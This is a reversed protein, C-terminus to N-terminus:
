AIQFGWQFFRPVVVMNLHCLCTIKGPFYKIKLYRPLVKTLLTTYWHVFFRRIHGCMLIKTSQQPQEQFIFTKLNPPSKKKQMLRFQFSFHEEKDQKRILRWYETYQLSTMYFQKDRHIQWYTDAIHEKLILHNFPCKEKFLHKYKPVCFFQIM